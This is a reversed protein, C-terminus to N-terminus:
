VKKIMEIIENSNKESPYIFRTVTNKLIVTVPPTLIFKGFPVKRVRLTIEKAFESVDELDLKIMLYSRLTQSDLYNSKSSFWNFLGVSLLFKISSLIDKELADLMDM